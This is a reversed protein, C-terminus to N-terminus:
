PFELPSPMPLASPCFLSFKTYKPGDLTSQPHVVVPQVLVGFTHSGDKDMWTGLGPGGVRISLVQFTGGRDQYVTRICGDGVPGSGVPGCRSATRGVRRWTGEERVQGRVASQSLAEAEWDRRTLGPFLEGGDKKSKEGSREDGDGDGM